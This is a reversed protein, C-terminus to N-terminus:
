MGAFMAGRGPSPHTSAIAMTVSQLNEVTLIPKSAEITMIDRIMHAKQYVSMKPATLTPVIREANRTPNVNLCIVLM